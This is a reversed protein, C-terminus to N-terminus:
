PRAVDRQDVWARRSTSRPHEVAYWWHPTAGDVNANVSDVILLRTGAKVTLCVQTSDATARPVANLRTVPAAVAIAFRHGATYDRVFYAMGNLAVCMVAMTIGGFFGVKRWLPRSAAVFLAGGALAMLFAFVGLTAYSNWRHGLIWQKLTAIVYHDGAFADDDIVARQRTISLAHRADDNSPDLLLAREYYLIAQVNDGLRYYNSAIDYCLAGSTGGDREVATLAALADNYRKDNYAVTASDIVAQLSDVPTADTAIASVIM